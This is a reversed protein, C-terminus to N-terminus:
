SSIPTLARNGLWALFRRFPPRRACPAAALAAEGRRRVRVSAAGAELLKVSADAFAHVLVTGDSEVRIEAGPELVHDRSDGPQTIWLVGSAAAIRAGLGGCVTLGEGRKLDCTKM